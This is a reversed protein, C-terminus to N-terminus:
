SIISKEYALVLRGILHYLLQLPVHVQKAPRVLHDVDAPQAEAGGKCFVQFGVVDGVMVGAGIPGGGVPGHLM